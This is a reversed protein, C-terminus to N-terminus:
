HCQPQCMCLEPLLKGMQVIVQEIAPTMGPQQQQLMRKVEAVSAQLQAAAAQDV